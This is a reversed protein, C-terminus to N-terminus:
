ICVQSEAWFASEVELRQWLEPTFMEALAEPMLNGM